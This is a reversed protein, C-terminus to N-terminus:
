QVCSVLFGALENSVNQLQNLSTGTVKSSIAQWNTSNRQASFVTHSGLEVAVTHEERNLWQLMCKTNEDKESDEGVVEIHM